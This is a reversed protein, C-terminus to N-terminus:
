FLPCTSPQPVHVRAAMIVRIEHTLRHSEIASFFRFVEKAIHPIDLISNILSSKGTVDDARNCYRQNDTTGSGADGMLAIIVKKPEPFKQIAIAEAHLKAMDSGNNSIKASHVGVNVALESIRAQHKKVDEHYIACPPYEEQDASWLVPGQEPEKDVMETDETDDTENFLSEVDSDLSIDDDDRIDPTTHQRKNAQDEANTDEDVLTRKRSGSLGLLPEPNEPLVSRSAM